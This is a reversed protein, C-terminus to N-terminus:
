KNIEDQIVCLCFQRAICDGAKPECYTLITCSDTEKKLRKDTDSRDFLRSVDLDLVDKELEAVLAFPSDNLSM